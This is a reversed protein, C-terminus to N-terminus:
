FRYTIQLVKNLIFLLLQVDSKLNYELMNVKDCIPMVAGMRNSKQSLELNNPENYNYLLTICLSYHHM